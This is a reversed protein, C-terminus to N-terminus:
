AVPEELLKPRVSLRLLLPPLSVFPAPAPLLELPLSPSALAPLRALLKFPTPTPPIPSRLLSCLPSPASDTPATASLALPAALLAFPRLDCAWELRAPRQDCPM